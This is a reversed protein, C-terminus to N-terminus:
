FRAVPTVPISAPATQILDVYEQTENVPVDRHLASIIGQTSTHVYGFANGIAIVSEGPM